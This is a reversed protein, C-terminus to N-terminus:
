IMAHNFQMCYKQFINELKLDLTDLRDRKPSFVRGSLITKNEASLTNPDSANACYEHWVQIGKFYNKDKTSYQGNNYKDAYEGILALITKHAEPSQTNRCLESFIKANKIKLATLYIKLPMDYRDRNCITLLTLMREIDRLSLGFFTGWLNVTEIVAETDYIPPELKFLKSLHRAYTLTQNNQKFDNGGIIRPLAVRLDIFKHLYTSADIDHGYVGKIAKEHQDRNIMLVFVLNPIDFFHKVRELLQVAFTPKCRDLEDIIIIVPKDQAITFKTLVDKFVDISKQTEEYNKLKDTLFDETIDAMANSVMTSVDSTGFAHKALANVGIKAMVPILASAVKGGAEIFTKGASEDFLKKMEATILLFPDDIFDNAFADILIAKQKQGALSAQWNKAFWSKGEGWPADIVLVCGHKEKADAPNGVIREIIKDVNEAFTEREFLDDVWPTTTTQQKVKTASQSM